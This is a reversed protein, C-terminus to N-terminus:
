QAGGNRWWPFFCARQGALAKRKLHHIPPSFCSSLMSDPRTIYSIWNKGCPEIMSTGHRWNKKIWRHLEAQSTFQNESGALLNWEPTYDLIAFHVHLREGGIRNQEHWTWYVPVNRWDYEFNLHYNLLSFYSKILQNEPQNLKASFTLTGAIAWGYIQQLWHRDPHSSHLTQTTELTNQM